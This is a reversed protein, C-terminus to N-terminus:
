NSLSVSYGLKELVDIANLTNFLRDMLSRIKEYSPRTEEEFLVGLDDMSKKFEKAKVVTGYLAKQIEEDSMLREIRLRYSQKASSTTIRDSKFTLYSDAGATDKTCQIYVKSGDRVFGDKDPNEASYLKWLMGRKGGGNSSAEEATEAFACDNKGGSSFWSRWGSSGPKRYLYGYKGVYLPRPSDGLGRAYKGRLDSVLISRIMINNGQFAIRDQPISRLSLSYSPFVVAFRDGYKLRESTVGEKHQIKGFDDPMSSDEHVLAFVGQGLTVRENPIRPGYPGSQYFEYSVTNCLAFNPGNENELFVVDCSRLISLDERKEEVAKVVKDYEVRERTEEYIRQIDEWTPPSRWNSSLIKGVSSLDCARKFISLVSCTSAEFETAKYGATEALAAVYSKDPHVSEGMLLRGLTTCADDVREVDHSRFTGSRFNRQCQKVADAATEM